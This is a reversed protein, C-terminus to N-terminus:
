VHHGEQGMGAVRHCDPVFAGPVDGRQVGASLVSAELDAVGHATEVDESAAELAAPALHVVQAALRPLLEQLAERCIAEKGLVRQQIPM